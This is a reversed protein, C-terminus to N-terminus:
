PQWGLAAMVGARVARLDEESAKPAVHKRRDVKFRDLRALSVNALLDCKAWCPVTDDEGPHYNRSLRVAYPVDHKPATLSIPVVTALGARYPLKSSVVIVPRTKIIEPAM